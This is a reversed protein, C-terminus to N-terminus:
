KSDSSSSSDNRSYQREPDRAGNEGSVQLVAAVPPYRIFATRLSPEADLAAALQRAAAAAHEAHYHADTQRGAAAAFRSAAAHVRWAAVPANVGHLAQSAQVFASWAGPEDSRAAACEADALWGLALWSREGCEAARSRVRNAHVRAAECDGALRSAESLGYHLPLRWIWDMLVRERDLRAALGGLLETAEEVNGIDLAALGTTTQALLEGFAFRADRADSLAQGGIRKAEGPAGAERLLWAYLARFLVLWPRHDNVEALRMADSLAAHTESWAGDLLSAWVRFFQCVLRGFADGAALGLDAGERAAATAAAYRTQVLRAYACRALLSFVRIPENARQAVSLATECDAADEARWGEWLLYWYASYGRTYLREREPLHVSLREAERSVELCQQRDFWSLASAALLLGNVTREVRGSDRAARAAALFSASAREMEGMSRRVRGLEELITIRADSDQGAPLLATVALGHELCVVAERNAFRRVDNSAALMLYKVAKAYDRAQEFHGALEAAIEGVREGYGSEGREAVRQHLRMRRAASLRQYIVNQYLSHTFGFRPSWTGDPLRGFGTAAVFHGRTALRDLVREVREDAEDLGAAVAAVPFEAGMVSASELTRQEESSLRELQTEIMQRLSEPVVRALDELAAPMRWQAGERAVLKRDVLYDVLNTMFLANGDTREHV